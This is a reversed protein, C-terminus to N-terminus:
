THISCYRQPYFKTNVACFDSCQFSWVSDRHYFYLTCQVTNSHPFIHHAHASCLIEITFIETTFLITHGACYRQPLFIINGASYRKPSFQIHVLSYRQPLFNTHVACYTQPPFNLKCQMTDRHHFKKTHM